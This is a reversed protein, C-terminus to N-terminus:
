QAYGTITYVTERKKLVRRDYIVAAAVALAFGALGTWIGAAWLMHGLLYGALFLVLPLLYLLAAAALVPASQSHINVVDGVKAGIPNQATLYMTQKVAGCGACKHCDGSCASERIHVVRATGDTNCKVIKVTQEM